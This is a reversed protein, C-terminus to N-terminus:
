TGHRIHEPPGHRGPAFCVRPCFPGPSRCQVAAARAPTPHADSDTAVLAHGDNYKYLVLTWIVTEQQIARPHSLLFPLHMGAADLSHPLGRHRGMIMIVCMVLKSFTSLVGIFSAEMGPLRRGITLTTPWVLRTWKQNGLVASCCFQQFLLPAYPVPTVSNSSGRGCNSLLTTSM